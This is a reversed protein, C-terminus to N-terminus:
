KKMFKETRDDFSVWYEGRTLATCDISTGRGRKVVQGFVNHLEYSTETSFYVTKSKKEYRRTVAEVTSKM